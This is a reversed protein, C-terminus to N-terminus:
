QKLVTAVLAAIQKADIGGVEDDRTIILTGAVGNDEEHPLIDAARYAALKRKWRVAYDPNHLMGLHEWYYRAGTDDDVITFDPYRTDGNPLLLPVEYGYHDVGQTLLENAIIVESKSRVLDGRKTRHILRDELFRKSGDVEVSIPNPPGFLNTLRRAIDSYSENAYRQLKRVDGQHLIIIRKQQRTLATYLLERSLLWCPNPLVVFTIGFESGQTKHVTLAYALELPPGEEGSFARIGFDYDHGLLTKGVHEGLLRRTTSRVSLRLHLCQVGLDALQRYLVIKQRFGETM